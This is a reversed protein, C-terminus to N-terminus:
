RWRVRAAPAAAPRAQVHVMPAASARAAPASAAVPPLASGAAPIAPRREKAGDSLGAQRAFRYAAPTMGTYSQFHRSLSRRNAFGHLRALETVRMGSTRLDQMLCEVRFLGLVVRPPYGFWKWALRSLHRIGVGLAAATSAVTLQRQHDERVLSLFQRLRDDGSGAIPKGGLDRWASRLVSGRRERELAARIGKMDAIRGPHIQPLAFLIPPPAPLTLYLVQRVPSQMSWSRLTDLCCPHVAGPDVVLTAGPWTIGPEKLCGIGAVSADDGISRVTDIISDSDSLVYIRRHSM